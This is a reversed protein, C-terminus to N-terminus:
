AAGGLLSFIDIWLFVITDAIIRESKEKPRNAASSSATGSGGSRGRGSIM